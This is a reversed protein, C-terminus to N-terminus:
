IVAFHSSKQSRRGLGLIIGVVTLLLGFIGWEFGVLPETVTAIILAFVLVAMRM